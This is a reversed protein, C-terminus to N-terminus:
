KGPGRLSKLEEALLAALDQESMADLQPTGLSSAAPFAPTPSRSTASAASASASQSGHPVATPAGAASSSAAPSAPAPAASGAVAGPAKIAGPTAVSTALLRINPYDWTLTTPLDRKLWEGLGASLEVATLSDIGFDSFPKLPDIKDAALQLRRGIWSCLWAEIEAAHARVDVPATGVAPSASSGAAAKPAPTAAPAASRRAPVGAGVSVVDALGAASPSTSAIGTTVASTPPAVLDARRLLPDLDFEVGAARQEVDGIAARHRAAAALIESTSLPLELAPIPQSLRQHAENMLRRLWVRARPLEPDDGAAHNEVIALWLAWLGFEGLVRSVRQVGLAQEAETGKVLHHQKALDAAAFVLDAIAPANLRERLFEQLPRSQSAIRSGLFMIMTETPGEFIRVLRADRYLQPVLNTEIYGRGGLMQLLHDVALGLSEPGAYKVLAFFEEPVDLGADYWRGFQHIFSRLASIRVIHETIRERTILNEALRGTSMSRRAAYRLMLQVCRQMTGLSVTAIFLRGFKMTDQAVDMGTGPGGIMDEPGVRMGELHVTNQIMGRMGMTMEEAGMRLGPSGQRLLFTTIGRDRGSEDLLHAAAVIWGSWAGTGIWRKSGQLLWGGNGDPTATATIARPNSGAAPETFAFAVLERGAAIPPIVERRMRESGHRLLTRLGLANHVGVFSSLNVDVAGLQVGVRLADMTTLGTGGMAEPVELGLLGNNGFDLVVYPPICRREDILYSNVRQEAYGRIWAIMADARQRSREPDGGLRPIAAGPATPAMSGNAGQAGAGPSSAPAVMVPSPALTSSGSGGSAAGPPERDSFVSELTSAEWGARAAFRQLKGSSTKPLTVPKLLTVAFVSLEHAELVASRIASVVAPGDLTRLATRQVEAAIGLQEVGDIRLAFAACSGPQLAPHSLEATREIDQPYHNKGRVIIVDKIRGTVYLEGDKLFGLDGTRLWPGSGDAQRAAMSEATREPQGWYGPSVHAGRLWIEGVTAPPRAQLSVPDVIALEQGVVSRGCSVSSLGDTRGAAVEVAENRGLAAPDLRLARYGEGAKGGTALLTTEAMGYCAYLATRRLGCGAFADAFRDFARADIPESGNYILELCSLDLEAKQEATIVRACLDFAFNPAGTTRARQRSIAALWRVPKQLFAAPPMLVTSTGLYLPQLLNGILGMDHYIPLWSVFTSEEHYGFQRRIMEANAMINGHTIMVGRPQGTSGSSYQLLGLSETRIAPRQWAPDAQTLNDSAILRFSSAREGLWPEVKALGERTSVIVRVEADRLIAEIRPMHRANRPPYAAIAVVGGYLCGFFSAVFELGPPHLLLVRGGEGAEARLRAGIARARADLGAYSLTDMEGEGEALFHVAPRGGHRAARRELLTVFDPTGLM